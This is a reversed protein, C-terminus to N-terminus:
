SIWLGLDKDIKWGTEHHGLLFMSGYGMLWDGTVGIEVLAQSHARDFGVRSFSILPGSNPYCEHFIKWGDRPQGRLTTKDEPNWIEASESSTLLACPLPLNLKPKLFSPEAEKAVFDDVTEQTLGTLKLRWHLTVSQISQDPDKRRRVSQLTQERIVFRERGPRNFQEILIASYVHYEQESIEPSM